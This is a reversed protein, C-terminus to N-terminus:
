IKEEIGTNVATDEASNTSETLLKHLLSLLATSKNGIAVQSLPVINIFVGTVTLTIEFSTVPSATTGLVTLKTIGEPAVPITVSPVPSIVLIVIGPSPVHVTM